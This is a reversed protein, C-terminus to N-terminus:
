IRYDYSIGVSCFKDCVGENPSIYLKSLPSIFQTVNQCLRVFFFVIILTKGKPFFFVIFDNCGDELIKIQGLDLDNSNSDHEIVLPFHYEM